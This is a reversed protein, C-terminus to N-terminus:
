ARPSARVRHGFRGRRAQQMLATFARQDLHILRENDGAEIYVDPQTTLRDDIVTPLGYAFGVPPIAGPEIDDFLAAVEHERALRLNRNLERSIRRLRVHHTAPLVAMVYGQEDGLVVSKALREGPIAAGPLGKSAQPHAVVDYDIGRQAIVQEVRRPRGM